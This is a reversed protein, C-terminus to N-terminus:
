QEAGAISLFVEELSKDNSNIIEDTKGCAVLKGKVIIGIRDCIKEAVDLVHTSFFVVNGADCHERMLKKLQFASQPDLGTLPEDLIWVKPNHILAGIIAIKQKMGHSYKSIPKDFSDTLEFLEVMKEFREKREDIGVGYVDALFNVYERGTLKDYIVTSDPVYGINKKANLSQTKLDFDCIKVEGDYDGLIGTIIKITTTKGAGNPGIFGFIEGAVLQLSLGDVAKVEGKNYSKSVNNLEIM